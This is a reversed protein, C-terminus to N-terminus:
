EGSSLAMNHLEVLFKEVDAKKVHKIEVSSIHKKMISLTTDDPNVEIDAAEENNVDKYEEIIQLEYPGANEISEVFKDYQYPDKKNQVILKIIKNAYYEHERGDYSYVTDDYFIKSYLWYPNQIFDLKLTNTDLIHAGKREGYDSWYFESPNGVYCVKGDFSNHHFHGSMVLSFKEVLEKKEGHYAITGKHMEYGQLEFHGCCIKAKSKNIADITIDRNDRNIWPVLLIKQGDIVIEEPSKFYCHINEYRDLYLEQLVNKVNSSRLPIDHNGCIIHTEVGLANLPELFKTRVFNATTFAIGQRKDVLDGLHIVHKINRDKILPFFVNDLFLRANELM